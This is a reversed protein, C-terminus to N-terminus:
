GWGVSLLLTVLSEVLEPEWQSACHEAWRYRSVNAIEWLFPELHCADIGLPTDPWTVQHKKCSQHPLHAEATIEKLHSLATRASMGVSDRWINELTLFGRSNLPATFERVVPCESMRGAHDVVRPGLGVYTRVNEWTERVCQQPGAAGWLRAREDRNLGLFKSIGHKPSSARTVRLFFNITRNSMIRECPRPSWTIKM